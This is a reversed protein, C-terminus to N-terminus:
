QRRRRTYVWFATLGIVSVGTTVAVIVPLPNQQAAELLASFSSGFGEVHIHDDEQVVKLGMSNAATVIANYEDQTSPLRLDVANGVLHGSSLGGSALYREVVSQIGARGSQTYAALVDSSFSGSYPWVAKGASPGGKLIKSEMASAQEAPTRYASTVVIDFGVRNRLERLMGKTNEEYGPRLNVGKKWLVGPVDPM